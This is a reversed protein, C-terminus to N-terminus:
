RLVWSSCLAYAPKNSHMGALGLGVLQAMYYKPVVKLGTCVFGIESLYPKSIKAEFKGFVPTPMTKILSLEFVELLEMTVETPM